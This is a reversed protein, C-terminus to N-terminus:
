KRPEIIIPRAPALITARGQDDFEITTGALHACNTLAIGITLAALAIAATILSTKM